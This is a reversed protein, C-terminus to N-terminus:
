MLHMMNWRLMTMNLLEFDADDTDLQVAYDDMMADNDPMDNTNNEDTVMQADPPQSLVFPEADYSDDYM